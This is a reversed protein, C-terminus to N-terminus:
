GDNSAVYKESEDVGVSDARIARADSEKLKTSIRWFRLLTVSMAWGLFFPAAGEIPGLSIRFRFGTFLGVIGLLMFAVGFPIALVSCIKDFRNM